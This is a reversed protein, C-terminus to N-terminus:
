KKGVFLGYGFYGARDKPVIGWRGVEKAFRRYAPSRAHLRLM